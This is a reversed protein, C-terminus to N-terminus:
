VWEGYNLELILSIILIGLGLYLFLKIPSELSKVNFIFDIIFMIAGLIVFTMGFLISYKRVPALASTLDGGYIKQSKAM